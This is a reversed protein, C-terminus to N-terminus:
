VLQKINETKAVVVKRTKEAGVIDLQRSPSGTKAEVRGKGVGPM